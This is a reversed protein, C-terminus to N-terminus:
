DYFSFQQVGFGREFECFVFQLNDSRNVFMCFWVCWVEYISYFGGEFVSRFGVSSCSEDLGNM